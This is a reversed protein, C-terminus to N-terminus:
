NLNKSISFYFKTGKGPQSEVWIKGRHREVIRKCIALGIGTGEYADKAQLRQFIQFIRNFYQPEIGIGNDEVSFIYYDGEEQCSIHVHPSSDCFKIANGILNQFLQVMQGEDAVMTPMFDNVVLANKEQIVLSLNRVTQGLVRHIDILIFKKGRTEVRSYELLDNILGQMRVAGDVAYQIFEQADSDLKDKYRQSLLQTFSSVMRLPEQLDHSAIYAFQELEKNSRLLDENLRFLTKETGKKMETIDYCIGIMKLPKRDNDRNVLARASIYKTEDNSLKIRYVTEFPVDDELANKIADRTHPVDEEVLFKEFAEYTKAFSGPKIGFIVEMRKDWKLENTKIDWEWIGIGGNELALNLKERSLKLEDETQRRETIDKGQAITSVLKGNNDYIKASNWLVIRTEQKNTLIPIEITELNETLAQKIKGKSEKLSTKPFLFDLKKGLVDDSMYGTLREFAHNFLQIENKINWVIIPTNSYNLLNELYNKTERLERESEIIANTAKRESEMLRIYSIGYAFDNALTTLLKIEETTFPDTERSYISIAGFTTGEASLPLVISSKYGRKLAAERWPKFAPDTLMNNCIVTKGTRIATGTPGRGRETDDWTIHLQNIYGEDDGSSAVPIVAKEADNQIYGIWVLAHGCEKIIINCVNEVYSLENKAHMMAQSSKGLSNLTRNVKLLESETRELESLNHALKINSFSLQSLSHSLSLFFGKASELTTQNLRSVKELATIYEKEDFGFKRAQLHFYEYDLPEEDFFFQGMFLNGKHRGGIMIPTALDWMGNKCKYIRFEGEPIGETLITDSEICNENTLPHKRHFQTCINQWGVGVIVKGTEDIIAMPIKVLNYFHDMLTQVEKVDIIDSLSLIGLDGEPQLISKLKLRVREESERLAKEMNNRLTYNRFYGIIGDVDGNSNRKPIYSGEFYQTSGDRAALATSVKEPNGSEIVKRKIITLGKAEDASLLDLDTKGIMEESTLGLQPNIVTIYRLDLDQIVIHDPTNTAIVRFKDESIRLAEEIKKRQTIDRAVHVSGTLNGAKDFMPTNSVIFDGGLREEHIEAIHQKGDLLTLTHPCLSPASKTDHVCNYCFSGKISEATGGLSDLMAKNARLIRHKTDIIAILDPIMDFTEVWEQRSRLLEEEAKKRKTIEQSYTVVRTVEGNELVPYLNHSFIMGAREDEYLVPNGTNFVINFKEWRSRALDENMFEPFFHGLVDPVSKNLREAGTTNVVEFKGKRDIMYISERTADLIARLNSESKRLAIEAHMRNEDSRIVSRTIYWVMLIFCITYSLAVLTVGVESKFWGNQEGYIRVLGILLPLGIVGPLLKRAVIGGSTGSAFVKMFWTGPRTLIASICLGCFAFGTNLAVPTNLINHMESVGFLYSVPISYSIISAPLILIHGINDYIGRKLSFLIM